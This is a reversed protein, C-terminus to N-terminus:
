KDPIKDRSGTCGRLRCALDGHKERCNLCDEFNYEVANTLSSFFVILLLSVLIISYKFAM